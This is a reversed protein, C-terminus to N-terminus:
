AKNINKEIKKDVYLKLNKQKRIIVRDGPMLTEECHCNWTEGLLSVTADRDKTKSNVVIGTKGTFDNEKGGRAEKKLLYGMFLTICVISGLIPLLLSLSVQIDAASSDILFLSGITIATLGSVALLGFSTIFTEAIILAMGLLLLLLGGTNIPLTQLSMLGLIISTVGFLGPFILSFGSSIEVYIGLGGLTMLLTTINPNAIIHLFKQSASMPIHQLNKASTNKTDLVIKKNNILVTRNHLQRLLDDLNLAVIDILNKEKAEKAAFSVSKTVIKEALVTNRSYLAAQSRVLAATDNTVKKGMEGPVDKGDSSVPHAAGINTGPTMANVHASMMLIAGASTASAGGPAIYLIIPIPSTSFAQIIKRTSSLLGGPTNLQIVLAQLKDDSSKQIASEIFSASGPNITGDIEIFGLNAQATSAFTSTLISTFILTLCHILKMHQSGTKENANTPRDM